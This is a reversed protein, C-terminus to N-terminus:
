AVIKGLERLESFRVRSQGFGLFPSYRPQREQAARARQTRMSQLSPNLSHTPSLLFVQVIGGFWCLSAVVCTSRFLLCIGSSSLCVLTRCALLKPKRSHQASVDSNAQIADALSVIWEGMLVVTTSAILYVADFFEM